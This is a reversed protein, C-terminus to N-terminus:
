PAPVWAPYRDQAPDETLNVETWNDGRARWLIESNGSSDGWYIFADELPSWQLLTGEHGQWIETLDVVETLDAKILFQGHPDVKVVRFNQRDLIYLNGASDFEVEAVTSFTEWEEGAMTGVKYLEESQVELPNDKGSLEARSQCGLSVVAGSFCVVSLFTPNLPRFGNM